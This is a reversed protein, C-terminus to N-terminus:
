DNLYEHALYLFVSATWTYAPDVLPKGTTAEFNEAFGGKKCMACFKKALDRALEEEGARDLGDIFLMTEPAWIPGQWYGSPRYYKSEPSETAIGYDTIYDEKLTQVITEQIDEPLRDGLVIPMYSLSSMSEPSAKGNGAYLHLFKKGNWLNDILKNKLKGSRKRWQDASHHRGLKDAVVALQDMQLVLFAMLDPAEVPCGITYVTSNDWGSDNGHNYQPIGDHDDDRYDLWYNTLKVLKPYISRLMDRSVAGEVEMMKGLAWGHIPPKRYGWQLDNPRTGDPLFGMEHQNHFIYIM